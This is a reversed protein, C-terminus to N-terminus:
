RKMEEVLPEEVLVIDKTILGYKKLIAQAVAKDLGPKGVSAIIRGAWEIVSKMTKGKAIVAAGSIKETVTFGKGDISRHAFFQYEPVSPYKINKLNRVEVECKKEWNYVIAM